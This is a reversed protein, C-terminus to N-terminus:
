VAITGVAAAEVVLAFAEALAVAASVMATALGGSVGSGGGIGGCGGADGGGVSQQRQKWLWRRLRQLCRRQRCVASTAQVASAAVPALTAVASLGSVGNGCCVGGGCSFDQSVFCRGCDAMAGAVAATVVADILDAMSVAVAVSASGCVDRDSCGRSDCFYHQMFFRMILVVTLIISDSGFLVFVQQQGHSVFTKIDLM